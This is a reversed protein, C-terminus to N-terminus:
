RPVLRLRRLTGRTGVHAIRGSPRHLDGSEVVWVGDDAPALSYPKALGTAVVTAAGGDAIRLLRGTDFEVALLTGAPELAIGLANRLGAAHVRSRGTRVDIRLVRGNGSDSVYLAEGALALGHPASVQADFTEARTTGARIRGVETENAYYLDGNPAVVIPSASVNAIREARRAGPPLRYIGAGGSVLVSERSRELGWPMPIGAVFVGFRGTTPDISLIRDRGGREVVLLTGDAQVLIAAPLALGYSATVRIRGLLTERGRIAATLRWTGVAPFQLRVRYRGAGARAVPFVLSRTGLRARVAPRTPAAVTAVWRQGAVLQPPQTVLRPPPGAIVALVFLLPIM